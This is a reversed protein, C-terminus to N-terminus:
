KICIVVAKEDAFDLTFSVEDGDTTTELETETGDAAEVTLTKGEVATAPVTVTVETTPQTMKGAYEFAVSMMSENARVVVEGMPLKSATATAGEVLTMREGESVEGCVPCLTVNNHEVTECATTSVHDCGKRKCEASHKGNEVPSWEGFWHLLKATKKETRTYGCDKCTYVTKGGKTCTADIVKKEFEHPVDPGVYGAKEDGPNAAACVPCYLVHWEDSDVLSVVYYSGPHNCKEDEGEDKEGEDKESEDKESEDKKDESQAPADTAPDAFAVVSTTLLAAVLLLALFIRKSM